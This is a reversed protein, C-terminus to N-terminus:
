DAIPMVGEAADAAIRRQEDTFHDSQAIWRLYDPYHTSMDYLTHGRYRGFNIIPDGEESLVFRGGEDIAEVDEFGTAWTELDDPQRPIDPFEELQGSLIHLVADVTAADDSMRDFDGGVWRHHATAFDRPELRHFIELADIIVRDDMEFYIGSLEFERTLVKLHFRRIGFGAFDCAELYENLARAFSAFPPCEAVDDDTIGHFRTAGPSIPCQPNILQSRFDTAGDTDIRLTSLKAIRATRVDLGTTQVDLIVIPRRLDLPQVDGDADPSPEPVM